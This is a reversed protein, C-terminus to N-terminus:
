WIGGLPMGAVTGGLPFALPDAVLPERSSALLLLSRTDDLCEPMERAPVAALDALEAPLWEHRVEPQELLCADGADTRKCADEAMSSNLGKAADVVM